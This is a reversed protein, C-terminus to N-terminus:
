SEGLPLVQGEDTQIFCLEIAENRLYLTIVGAETNALMAVIDGVANVDSPVGAARSAAVAETLDTGALVEAISIGRSEGLVYIDEGELSYGFANLEEALHALTDDKALQVSWVAAVVLLVAALGLLIFKTRNSLGM